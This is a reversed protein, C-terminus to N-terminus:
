FQFYIFQTIPRLYILVFPIIIILLLFELPLAISRDRLYQQSFIYIRKSLFQMIVLLFAILYANERMGLSGYASIDLVKFWMLFTTELDPARFPIWGLMMIPLTIVIGIFAPTTFNFEDRKQSFIRYAFVWMAHYLGWVVFTWNAGHWLGMIAWTAILAKDKTTQTVASVLGGESNGGQQLSIGALPLYLYDRIWSSLSIHWRKWFDKPSSAAYPFNFNEPFRIGLMRASGIAIHSYASFDFYIQFGFLFSLTWVDIASMQSIPIAFGSDVLPALNDALIVKLFLGFFVRRLGWALDSSEFVLKERLQHMVERGRLIPGAVLQPFFTVYSAYLLFNREAQIVGRYVDVTYSITQFTYFSIGLPLIIKLAIPDLEVGIFSAFGIATNSFFILYKFYFLLGLNGILSLAVLKKRAQELSTKELRLCIFYDLVVSLLMVPIFEIRWFGYFTLSSFFILLIRLKQSPLFWYFIVILTLFVLFTLSNFIM